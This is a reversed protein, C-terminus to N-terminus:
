IEIHKTSKYVAMKWHNIVINCIHAIILLIFDNFSFQFIVTTLEHLETTDHSTVKMIIPYQNPNQVTLYM